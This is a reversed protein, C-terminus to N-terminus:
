TYIQVWVIEEFFFITGQKSEQILQEKTPSFHQGIKGDGTMPFTNSETM